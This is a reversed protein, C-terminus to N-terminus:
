SGVDGGDGRPAGEPPPPAGGFLHLIVLNLASLVGALLYDGFAIAAGIAGTNWISAATALGHVEGREKLIAGGGIFGIGMMLGQLVRAQGDPTEGFAKRALLLYACAGVAVLPFTRLGHHGRRRREWGVPLALLWAGALSLLIQLFASWSLDAAFM